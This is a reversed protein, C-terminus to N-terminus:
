LQDELDRSVRVAQRIVNSEILTSIEESSYGLVDALVEQSHEGLMPAPTRLGNPVNSLRWPVGPVTQRGVAGHNPQELMGMAVLHPDGSWLDLPSLSPFAAIGVAQLQNTIGWRDHQATWLGILEDLLAENRKREAATGFRPDDALGSDGLRDDILVCLNKWMADTTCAITVWRDAGAAPYCNHPSWVADHNGRPGPLESTSQWEMWPEGITAAVAEVMAVDITAVEGNRRRAVIASMVAWAATIGTGPDGIAIGTESPEAGEYGNAAYLGAVAGGAPGYAVNASDPGTQGYGSLSVVIVNPNMRRLDEPGLGLRAMTGVAFNDVVIDSAAVLREVVERSQQQRLDIEVSRKDSNWLHFVGATDHTLAMGKPAFPLRRFLCLRESSELKIVDVGLHALTQTCYPGAWIWTFDCIRVGELPRTKPVDESPTRVESLTPLWDEGNHQSRMPANSRLSWWGQDTHFGPGPLRLGDPTTAFFRRAAFHPDADLQAMTNIPSICVRAAQAAHCLADVSQEAMWEALYVEILDANEQRALSTAFVDLLGWEPSGMLEVFARWQADEPCIFQVLGDRCRYINWPIVSKVGVRSPDVGHYLASVPATETMKAAAAFIAFDVHTGVGTRAAYDFAALAVTAATTAANITAHHGPAKLPPLDIRTSASPSLFGWSSGHIVNLEESVFNAYPGTMGFPTISCVVLTPYQKALRTLVLGAAEAMLPGHDHLLIDAHEVLDHFSCTMSRKNTNLWRDVGHPRLRVIDADPSGELRIM